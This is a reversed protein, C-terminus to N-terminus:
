KAEATTEEKETEETKDGSGKRKALMDSYYKRATNILNLSQVFEDTKRANAMAQLYLTFEKYTIYMEARLSKTDYSEKAASSVMRGGFLTKFAANTEKLRTVYRDLNLTKVHKNYTAGELDAVLNDLGNSEAEYNLAALGKYSKLVMGLVRAAEAEDPLDSALGLDVAKSFAAIAADRMLDADEIKRTEESGRIQVLSKEYDASKETLLKLYNVLAVDTITGSPLTALDDLHRKILAGAEMNTLHSVKLIELQFNM